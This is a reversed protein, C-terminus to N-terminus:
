KEKKIRSLQFANKNKQWVIYQADSNTGTRTLRRGRLDYYYETNISSHEPHTSTVSHYAYYHTAANNFWKLTDARHEVRQELSDPLLPFFDIGSIKEVSDISVAFSSLPMQSNEHKLIFGIAMTDKSNLCLIAKYFYEPVAVSDIGITPLGKRLIPGTVIYLTDFRLAWNRVQVELKEWTGANFSHTQPSMNSLYFCDNMSASDWADAAPFLHGRDYGSNKYDDLSASATRVLPDARYNDTRTITVSAKAKDLEYAVWHAQEYPEAYELIFGSHQVIAATDTYYPIEMKTGAWSTVIFSFIILVIKNM